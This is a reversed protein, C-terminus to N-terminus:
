SNCRTFEHVSLLLSFNALLILFRLRCSAVPKSLQVRPIESTLDRLGSVARDFEGSTREGTQSKTLRYLNGFM